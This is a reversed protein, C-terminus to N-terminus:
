VGGDDLLDALRLSKDDEDDFTSLVPEKVAPVVPMINQDLDATLSRNVRPGFQKAAARVPQAPRATLHKQPATVAVADVNTVTPLSGSVNVIPAPALDVPAAAVPVEKSVNVYYGLFAATIILLLAAMATATRFGPIAFLGRVGDLWSAGHATEYPIVIEPTPLHAFEGRQWEMVSVRSYSIAAFEDTCADCGALHDEFVTREFATMEGYLYAVPDSIFGCNNEHENGM